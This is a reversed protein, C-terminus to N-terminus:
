RRRVGSSVWEGGAVGVEGSQEVEDAEGIEGALEVEGSPGDADARGDAGHQQREVVHELKTPFSL